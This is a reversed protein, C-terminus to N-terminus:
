ANSSDMSTRPISTCISRVAIRTARGHGGASFMIRGDGFSLEAWVIEGDDDGTNIVLFGISEYWDVAARVDPVHIMPTVRQEMSKGKEESRCPGSLTQEVGFRVERAM